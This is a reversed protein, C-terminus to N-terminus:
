NLNILNEVKEKLSPLQSMVFNWITRPQYSDYQHVITNRRNILNNAQSLKIDMKRLRLAVDGIIQLEREVARKVTSTSQEYEAQSHINSLHIEHIEQIAQLIDYLYKKAKDTM